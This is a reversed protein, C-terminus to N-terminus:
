KLVKVGESTIRMGVPGRFHNTMRMKSIRLARDGEGSLGSSYLEIVGDVLYKTFTIEDALGYGESKEEDAEGAILVCVNLKKLLSALEYIQKRLTAEKPLDIAFVNIPDFVVRRIDYKAVLSTLKSQMEKISSNTDFKVFKLKGKKDLTELDLGMKKGARYLDTIEPEFSVYLGNENAKSAGHNLFQLSFTTKGAGANGIVLNISDSILGGECLNDFGSIGTACREEASIKSGAVLNIKDKVM